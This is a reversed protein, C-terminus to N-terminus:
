FLEFKDEDDLSDVEAIDSAGMRDERCRRCFPVNRNDGIYYYDNCM